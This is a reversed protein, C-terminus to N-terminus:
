AGRSRREITRTFPKLDSLSVSWAWCGSREDGRASAVLYSRRTAAYLSDHRPRLRARRRLEQHPGSSGNRASTSCEGFFYLVTGRPHGRAHAPDVVRHKERRQIRAPLIPPSAFAQSHRMLPMRRGTHPDRAGLGTHLPPLFAARRGSAGRCRRQSAPQGGDSSSRTLYTTNIARRSSGTQRTRSSSGLYTEPGPASGSFGTYPQSRAGVHKGTKMRGWPGVLAYRVWTVAAASCTRRHFRCASPGAGPTPPQYPLLTSRSSMSKESLLGPRTRRSTSWDDALDM